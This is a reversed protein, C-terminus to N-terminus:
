TEDIETVRIHFPPILSKLVDYPSDGFTTMGGNKMIRGHYVIKDAGQKSRRKIIEITRGAVTEDVFQMFAPGGVVHIDGAIAWDVFKEYIDDELIIQLFFLLLDIADGDMLELAYTLLDRLQKDEIASIRKGLTSKVDNM